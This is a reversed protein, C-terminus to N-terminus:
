ESKTVNDDPVGGDPAGEVLMFTSDSSAHRHVMVAQYEPSNYFAKAAVMSPFELVVLRDSFVPGELTEVAGGRVLFRGGHKAILAPTEATYLKYTEPDDVRVTCVFYASM